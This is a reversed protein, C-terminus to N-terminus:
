KKNGQLWERALKQAQAIQESTMNKEALERNKQMDEWGNAESLNFWKLAEVYNLPVGKGTAYMVGLNLQARSEGKEALPRWKNLATEYDKRQIAAVGDELGGAFLVAPAIFLFFIMRWKKMMHTELFLNVQGFIQVLAFM